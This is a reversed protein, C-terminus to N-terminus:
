NGLPQFPGLLSSVGSRKRLEALLAAAANSYTKSPDSPDAWVADYVIQAAEKLDIHLSAELVDVREQLREYCPKCVTAPEVAQLHQESFACLPAEHIIESDSAEVQARLQQLFAEREQELASIEVKPVVPEPRSPLARVVDPSVRENSKCWPCSDINAAYYLHCKACPLGYGLSKQPFASETEMPARMVPRMEARIERGDGRVQIEPQPVLPATIAPKSPSPHTVSV